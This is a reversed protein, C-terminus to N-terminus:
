KPIEWRATFHSSSAINAFVKGLSLRWVVIRVYIQKNHKQIPQKLTGFHWSTENFGGYVGLSLQLSKDKQLAMTKLSSSWNSVLGQVKYSFNDTGMGTVLM